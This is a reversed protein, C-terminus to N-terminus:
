CLNLKYGYGKVNMLLKPHNPDDEIKKRLLHMYQYLDAKTARQSVPWLHNVIEEASFIRDVDTLLLEILEFEKPTLDIKNGNIHLCKGRQDIHFGVDQSASPRSYYSARRETFSRREHQRREVADSASSFTTSIYGDLEELNIPTPMVIDAMASLEKSVPAASNEDQLICVKVQSLKNIERQFSRMELSNRTDHLVGASVLILDPQIIVMERIGPMTLGLTTLKIDKAFCYGQLMVSTNDDVNFIVIDTIDKM